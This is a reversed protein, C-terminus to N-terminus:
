VGYDGNMNGIVMYSAIAGDGVTDIGVFNFIDIRNATGTPAAAGQWHITKGTGNYSLSNVIRGAAHQRIVVSHTLVHNPLNTPINNVQFTVNGNLVHDCYAVNGNGAAFDLTATEGSTWKTSKQAMSATASAVFTSIGSAEVGGTITVGAGTTALKESAEHYLYVTGGTGTDNCTIFNHGASDGINLNTGRLYLPGAGIDTIYSASGDHYIELDNGAGLIIKDNDGLEVNNNFTAVGVVDLGGGTVRLGARATAIGISDQNTVNEYTLDGLVTVNGSFNASSGSLVGGVTAAGSVNVSTASANGLSGSFSSATVVGTANVGGVDLGGSSFTAATVIGSFEVGPSLIDIGNAFTVVGTVYAGQDFTVASGVTFDGNCTLTKGAAVIVGETYIPAATGDQSVINNVRLESM